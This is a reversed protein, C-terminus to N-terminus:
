GIPNLPLATLAERPGADELANGEERVADASSALHCSIPRGSLVDFCCSVVWGNGDIGM